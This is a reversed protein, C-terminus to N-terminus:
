ESGIRRYTEVHWPFLLNHDIRDYGNLKFAERVKAVPHIFPKFNQGKLNTMLGELWAFIKSIPGDIPYSILVCSKTKACAVEIIEKYNPYCCVMKDLTIYDVLDVETHLQMFDGFLFSTQDAWGKENAHKEALRLYGSSAEISITEKGNMDLFWWQLAGIGGGVDILSKGEIQHKSFQGIIKATVKAPGRKMYQDYQKKARKKM